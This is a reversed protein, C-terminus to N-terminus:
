TFLGPNENLASGDLDAAISLLKQKENRFDLAYPYINTRSLYSREDWLISAINVPRFRNCVVARTALREVQNPM